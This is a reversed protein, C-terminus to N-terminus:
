KAPIELASLFRAVAQTIREATFSEPLPISLVPQNTQPDRSFLGSLQGATPASSRNELEVSLSQLFVLGTKALGAAARELADCAVLTFTKREWADLLKAPAGLPSLLASLLINTDLILRM